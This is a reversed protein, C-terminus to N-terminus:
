HHAPMEAEPASFNIPKVPAKVVITERKKGPHEIQLRLDVVEGAKLQHKLGVLMVHYGGSALNVGKGAPLDIADVQQMKMMGDKMDMQHLEVQDAVPSSVGVLRADASSQLRMFAGSSKQVPVTARVWPASVSVGAIAPACLASLVALASVLKKM